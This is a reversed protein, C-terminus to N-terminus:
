QKIGATETLLRRYHEAMREAGFEARAKAANAAGLERRLTADSLLRSLARSFAAEDKPPVVFARNPDSVMEKVDGVDTAVVPLGAAMAEMLSLPAQETDSSLAFVDMQAYAHEPERTEGPLL